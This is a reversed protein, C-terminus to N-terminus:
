QIQAFYIEYKGSFTLRLWDQMTKLMVMVTPSQNGGTVTITLRIQCPQHSTITVTMWFYDFLSSWIFGMAPHPSDLLAVPQIEIPFVDWPQVHFKQYQQQSSKVLFYIGHSSMSNRTMRSAQNWHSIFWIAPRLSDPLAVPQIEIPLLDWPQVYIYNRSM